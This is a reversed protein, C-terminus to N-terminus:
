KVKEGGQFHILPEEYGYKGLIVTYILGDYIYRIINIYGFRYSYQM